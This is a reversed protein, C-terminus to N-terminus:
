SRPALLRSLGDFVAPTVAGEGGIVLSGRLTDRHRGLYATVPPPVAGPALLLLPSGSHAAYAAAALADTPTTGSAFVATSPEPFFREAVMAATEYRDAGVVRNGSPTGAAAAAQGGVAYVSAWPHAQLYAATVAPMRSGATLLVAGGSRAAPASASVADGVDAESVLFLTQPTSRPRLRDIVKAVAVATDYRDGGGLRVVTVGHRALDREVGSGLVGSGGVLYVTDGKGLGWLDCSTDLRTGISLLLPGNVASALPGAMLVDALKTGNVVVASTAVDRVRAPNLPGRARPDEGPVDSPTTFQQASAACALAFRDDGSVRDLPPQWFNTTRDGFRVADVVADGPESLWIGYSVIASGPCTQAIQALTQPAESGAWSWRASGGQLVDVTHWGQGSPVTGAYTLTLDGYPYWSPRANCDVQIVFRPAAGSTVNVAYGATTIDTLSPGLVGPPAGLRQIAVQEGPATTALHLSGDAHAEDSLDRVVRAQAGAGKQLYALRFWAAQPTTEDDAYRVDDMTVNEVVSAAAAAAATSSASTLSGAQAATGPGASCSASLLALATAGVVVAVARVRGVGLTTRTARLTM